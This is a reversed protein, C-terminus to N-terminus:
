KIISIQDYEWNFITDKKGLGSMRFLAPGSWWFKMRESFFETGTLLNQKQKIHLITITM